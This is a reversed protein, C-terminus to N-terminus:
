SIVKQMRLAQAPDIEARKRDGSIMKWDQRWEKRKASKAMEKWWSLEQANLESKKFSRFKKILIIISQGFTNGIARVTACQWCRRYMFASLPDYM